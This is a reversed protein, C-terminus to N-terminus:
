AKPVMAWELLSNNNASVYGPTPPKDPIERLFRDLSRKFTIPDKETKIDKPTINFLAPGTSTFYNHRLTTYHSRSRQLPRLARPGLRPHVKFNIGVDNPCYQHFIKWMMCIIYRERRRQLSYLKLKKLRGWYDLGSMGDIKRTISRQPAEITM